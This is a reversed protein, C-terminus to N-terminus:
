YKYNDAFNHSKMHADIMYLSSIVGFKFSNNKKLIEKQSYRHLKKNLLELLEIIEMSGRNKLSNIIMWGDDFNLNNNFLIHGYMETFKTSSEQTLLKIFLESNVEMYSYEWLLDGSFEHSNKDMDKLILYVAYGMEILENFINYDKLPEYFLMALNFERLNCLKIAYKEMQKIIIDDHNKIKSFLDLILSYKKNEFLSGICKILQQNTVNSNKISELIIELYKVIEKDFCNDKYNELKYPYDVDVLDICFGYKKLPRSFLIASEYEKLDYLQKTFNKMQNIIEVNPNKILNFLNFALKYQNNTFLIDVGEILQQNSVVGKKISELIEDLMNIVVNDFCNNKYDEIICPYYQYLDNYVKWFLELETKLGHLDVNTLNFGIKELKNKLKKDIGFGHEKKIAYIFYDHYNVQEYKGYKSLIERILCVLDLCVTIDQWYKENFDYLVGKIAYKLASKLYNKDLYIKAIEYYYEFAMDNCVDLKLLKNLSEDHKKLKRLSKAIIFNFKFEGYDSFDNLDGLAINALKITEDYKNSLFLGKLTLLYWQEKKSPYTTDVLDFVKKSLLDPNLKKSWRLIEDGSELHKMIELVTLTYVCGGDYKSCDRQKNIKLMLEGSNLLDKISSNFKVKDYYLSLPSEYDDYNCVDYKDELATKEKKTLKHNEFLCNISKSIILKFETYNFKEFSNLDNLADNSLKIAKKYRGVNLLAYSTWLYWKERKSAKNNITEKTLLKFDLKKSWYVLNIWDADEYLVEMIKLVTLTYFGENYRSNDIQNSIKLMLEGDNLLDNISSFQKINEYYLDRPSKYDDYEFVDYKKKLNTKEGKTLKNSEFLDKISKSIILKFERYFDGNINNLNLLAENSLEIAKDYEELALFAHATLSYWKEKKSPSVKNSYNVDSLFNPNIKNSWYIINKWDGKINDMIKFIMLTYPCEKNQKSCDIQNTIKVMAEGFYVLDSTSQKSKYYLGWPNNGYKKELEEISM